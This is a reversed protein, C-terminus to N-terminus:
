LKLVAQSLTPTIGNFASMVVYLFSKLSRRLPEPVAAEDGLLFERFSFRKNAILALCKPDLAPMTVTLGDYKAPLASGVFANRVPILLDLKTMKEVEAASALSEATKDVIFLIVVAFGSRRAETFFGLDTAAKCFRTTQTAPLDVVYDRGPSGLITDFLTMQGRITEFDVVSTRGPFFSRLSGHPFDADIVFPDHGDLMLYDVLARALLTKGNRHQDSCVIYVVPRTAL